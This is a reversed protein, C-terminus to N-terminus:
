CTISVLNYYFFLKLLFVYISVHIITSSQLKKEKIIHKVKTLTRLM